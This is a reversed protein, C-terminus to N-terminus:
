KKRAALLTNKKLFDLVRYASEPDKGTMTGIMRFSGVGFTDEVAKALPGLQGGFHAQLFLRFVDDESIFEDPYTRCITELIYKLVLRQPRYPFTYGEWESTEPNDNKTFAYVFEDEPLMEKQTAKVLGTKGRKSDMISKERDLHPNRKIVHPFLRKQLESVVAENLGILQRVSRKQEHTKKLSSYAELGVRRLYQGTENAELSVFAKLHIMEHLLVSIRSYPHDLKESNLVIAQEQHACFGDSDTKSQGDIEEYLKEPVSYINAEPVDFETLGFEKLIKNLLSNIDKIAVKEFDHKPYELMRLREVFSSSIQDRNFAFHDQINQQVERKRKDSATGVVPLEPRQFVLNKESM